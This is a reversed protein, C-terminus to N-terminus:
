PHAKTGALYNGGPPLAGKESLTLEGGNSMGQPIKKSRGGHNHIRGTRKRKRLRKRERLFFATSGEKLHVVPSVHYGGERKLGNWTTNLLPVEGKERGFKCDSGNDKETAVTRPEVRKCLRLGVEELSAHKDSDFDGKKEGCPIVLDKKERGSRCDIDKKKLSIAPDKGETVDTACIEDNRTEGGAL